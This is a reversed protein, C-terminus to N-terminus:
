TAIKGGGKRTIAMVSPRPPMGDKFDPWRTLPKDHTSMSPSDDASDGPHQIAVFFTELDPTMYPGCLEAGEPVRFFLKSTGRAPGATELAWVGDTRGTKGRNNGDTAVWLRGAPDIMCNDPMGFWGNATTAPNFTAGVPAIAPDGCRLLIDWGFTESAHDGGDPRIEVIHGFDNGARPNAANIDGAKRRSNNTLMVFVRNTAPDVDVDEPRDMKTAGLLDAALRAHIVVDGQDAFGNAAVLPGQGHVLPLWAGRGDEDFRAVSLTGADLLDRNAAHNSADVRGATVFRYVYDFREDDGQYVVFRGDKNVVNGAGEHKFRGLATRKKPVSKPDFPDIEVVWGFRNPENPERAMDFRPDVRAWPNWPKGFGYRALAAADASRGVPDKGDFYFNINEECTLWTGWPTMGGACNNIMGKVLRGEPDASTRMKKHGAAPGTIAMETDATIRRAYKSNAVVTWKGGTRRVEIVSGGHAMMTTLIQEPTLAKQIEPRTRGEAIGPFMLEENTYEHNVVLLGHNSSGELPFYGIYDNNYGFQTSQSSATQKATDFPPADGLVPDGWRILVDADYGEAVHHTADVGAEVEAFRFSPTSNTAAGTAHSKSPIDLDAAIASVATVALAGMMVDRRSLRGAIVDGLTANATPNSGDDEQAEPLPTVRKLENM